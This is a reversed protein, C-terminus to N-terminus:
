TALRGQECVNMCSAYPPGFCFPWMKRHPRTSSVTSSRARHLMTMRARLAYPQCNKWGCQYMGGLQGTCQNSHLDGGAGAAIMTAAEVHQVSDSASSVTCTCTTPFTHLNAQARVLAIDYLIAFHEPKLASPRCGPYISPASGDLLRTTAIAYEKWARYCAVGVDNM